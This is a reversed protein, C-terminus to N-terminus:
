NHIETFPRYVLHSMARNESVKSMNQVPINNFFDGFRDACCEAKDLRCNNKPNRKKLNLMLLASTFNYKVESFTKSFVQSCLKNHFRKISPGNHVKTSPIFIVLITVYSTM